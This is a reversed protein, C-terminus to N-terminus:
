WVRRFFTFECLGAHAACTPNVEITQVDGIYSVIKGGEGGNCICGEPKVLGAVVAAEAERIRPGAERLADHFKPVWQLDMAILTREHVAREHADRCTKRDCVAVELGGIGCDACRWETWESCTACQRLNSM